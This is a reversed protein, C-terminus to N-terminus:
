RAKTLKKLELPSITKIAALSNEDSLGQRLESLPPSFQLLRSQDILLTFVLKLTM